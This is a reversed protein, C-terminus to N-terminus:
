NIKLEWTYVLKGTKTTSQNIRQFGMHEYWQNSDLDSPCKAVISNAGKISSLKKLIMSGLGKRQKSPLIIIERITIIGDKRLHWHCLGGDILILEGRNASEFLPYFIM